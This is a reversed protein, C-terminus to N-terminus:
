GLFWINLSDKRNIEYSKIIKKYLWMELFVVIDYIFNGGLEGRM